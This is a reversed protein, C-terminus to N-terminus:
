SVGIAEIIEHFRGATTAMSFERARSAAGEALRRRLDPSAALRALAEGLAAADDPAVLLGTREDEIIEVIGGARTGVVPRGAAYSEACVVPAGEVRGAREIRSPVAVADCAELALRRRRRDVHGLFSVDLRAARARERLRELEPGNGAIWVAVGPARAAAEVLLDAGKIPVLRGLFLVVTRGRAGYEERFRAAAGPEPEPGIRAGMPVVDPAADPALASVRRALDRTVCVGRSRRAIARAIRAGAALRELLHVDGGHAVAVHPRGLSAGVLGSPVLWHSCVVDAWAAARRARIALAAALSLAELRARRSTRVAEGMDAGSDLRRRGFPWPHRFREVGVPAFAADAAVGEGAPAVVRVEHGHAEALARALDDVYGCVGEHPAAPYSSTLFLVRAVPLLTCGM